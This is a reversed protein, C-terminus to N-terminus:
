PHLATQFFEVNAALGEDNLHVIDVVRNGNDRRYVVAYGDLGLLIEELEFHLNPALELGRAFHTRVEQKGHLCGDERNWRGVITPGKMEVDDSYHSTIADLDHNNWAEFWAVVIPHVTELTLM